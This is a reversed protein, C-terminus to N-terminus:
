LRSRLCFVSSLFHIATIPHTDVCNCKIVFCNCKIVFCNCKIVFVWPHSQQFHFPSFLRFAQAKNMLCIPCVYLDDKCNHNNVDNFPWHGINFLGSCHPFILSDQHFRVVDVILIVSLSLTAGSLLLQSKRPVPFAIGFDWSHYCHVSFVYFVCWEAQIPRVEDVSLARQGGAPRWLLRLQDHHHLVQCVGAVQVTSDCGGGCKGRFSHACNVVSSMQPIPPPPPPM